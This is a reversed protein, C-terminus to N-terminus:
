FIRIGAADPIGSVRRADDHGRVAQGSRQLSGRAPAPVKGTARRDDSQGDRRHGPPRREDAGRAAGMAVGARAFDGGHRRRGDPQLDARLWQRGAVGGSIPHGRGCETASRRRHDRGRAGGASGARTVHVDDRKRDIQNPTKMYEDFITRPSRCWAPIRWGPATM